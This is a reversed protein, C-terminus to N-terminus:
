SITSLPIATHTEPIGKGSLQVIVRGESVVPPAAQIHSANTAIWQRARQVSEDTGAKDRCVTVSTGGEATGILFYNEFGEISRMLGDVDSKRRELLEFLEKAGNGSYTRIVAHM